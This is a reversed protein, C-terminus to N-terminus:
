YLLMELLCRWHVKPVLLGVYKHNYLGDVRQEVKWKDITDDRVYILPMEYSPITSHYQLMTCRQVADVVDQNM